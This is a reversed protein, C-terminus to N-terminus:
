RRIVKVIKRPAPWDLQPALGLLDAAPTLAELGSDSYPAKQSLAAWWDPVTMMRHRYHWASTTYIAQQNGREQLMAGM